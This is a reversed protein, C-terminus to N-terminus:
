GDVIRVQDPSLALRFGSTQPDTPFVEEKLQTRIEPYDDGTAVALAMKRLIRSLYEDFEDISRTSGIRQKIDHRSVGNGVEMALVELFKYQMPDLNPVRVGRFYVKHQQREILLEVQDQAVHSEGAAQEALRRLELLDDSQILDKDLLQSAHDRVSEPVENDNRLRELCGHLSQDNRWHNWFATGILIGLRLWPSLEPPLTGDRDVLSALQELAYAFPNSDLLEATPLLGGGDVDERHQESGYYTEWQRRFDNVWLETVCLAMPDLTGQLSHLADVIEDIALPVADAVQPDDVHWTWALEQWLRLAIIARGLEFARLADVPQSGNEAAESM